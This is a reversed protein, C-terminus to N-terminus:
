AHPLTEFVCACVCLCVCVCLCLAQARWVISCVCATLARVDVLRVQEPTLRAAPDWMLCKDMLDLFGADPTKLASKLDTSGAFLSVFLYIYQLLPV